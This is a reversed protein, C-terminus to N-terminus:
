AGAGSLLLSVSMVFMMLYFGLDRRLLSSEKYEIFTEIFTLLILVLAAIQTYLGIFVFFGAIMQLYSFAKLVYKPNPIKTLSIVRLREKKETKLSAFGLDIVILGLVIRILFPSLLGFSLLEPFTNLM